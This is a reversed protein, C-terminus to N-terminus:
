RIGINNDDQLLRARVMIRRLLLHRLATTSVTFHRRGGSIEGFELCGDLIELRGLEVEGLIM